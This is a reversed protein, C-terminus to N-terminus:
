LFRRSFLESWQFAKNIENRSNASHVIALSASNSAKPGMPPSSIVIRLCCTLEEKLYMNFVTNRVFEKRKAAVKERKPNQVLRGVDVPPSVLSLQFCDESPVGADLFCRLLRFAKQCLRLYALFLLETFSKNPHWLFWFLGSGCGEM